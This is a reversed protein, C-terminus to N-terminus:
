AEPEYFLKKGVFVALFDLSFATFDPLIPSDAQYSRGIKRRKCIKWKCKGHRQPSIYGNAKRIESNLRPSSRWATARFDRGARTSVHFVAHWWDAKERAGPHEFALSQAQSHKRAM